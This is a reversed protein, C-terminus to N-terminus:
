TAFRGAEGLPLRVAPVEEALAGAQRKPPHSVIADRQGPEQGSQRRHSPVHWRLAAPSRPACVGPPAIGRGPDQSLKLPWLVLPAPLLWPLALLPGPWREHPPPFKQAEPGQQGPLAFRQVRTYPM